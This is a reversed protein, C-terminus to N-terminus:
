EEYVQRLFEAFNEYGDILSSYVILGNNDVIHITVDGYCGRPYDVSGEFFGSEYTSKFNRWTMNNAQTFERLEEESMNNQWPHTWGIFSLGKSRYKDYITVLEEIFMTGSPFWQLLVTYKNKKYEDKFVLTNGDLDIVEFSPGFLLRKKIPSDINTNRIIEWWAYAWCPLQYINGPLQSLNKNSHLSINRLNVLRTISAPIAGSFQNNSLELEELQILDGISSPINGSLNNSSLSLLKLNTLDGIQSPITGKLQCGNLHLRELTPILCLDFPFSCNLPNGQLEIRKLTKMDRISNPLPGTFNNDRLGLDYLSEMQSIKPSLRGELKNNSLWLSGLSKLEYFSEPLEGELQNGEMYLDVLNQLNGISSPIKGTIPNSSIYLIQLKTLKGISEPLSGGINNYWLKLERLESLEGIEEPIYGSLNNYGLDLGTVRGKSDTTVGYWENLPKDSCWNTDDNWFSGNMAFWIAYLAKKDNLIGDKQAQVVKIKAVEGTEAHTFVIEAERADYTENALVTFTHAYGSTACNKNESLWDVEPMTITYEGNTSVEVKFEGGASTINFETESLSFVSKTKQVVKIEQKLDGSSITIIGERTEDTTNEAITFSLPKAELGRSETNQKIWDVSTSVEFDVNTNVEFKLDGGAAEVVYESKAIIIADKQAQVVKVKLVEETEKHTFVIEAERADYTENALVTFTHAYSSTARNKNESLWDVEPMTITYEGNTSVEVKFEGGASTINFETESLSFVSKTKQVVKIEQKLDGSSITIIGERAEETTNEDITFNLPTAELGRSETNQKIWDVSTSVEFDVNANVEFKLDGGTSEITYENKAVVIADKQTQVVKLTDKLESNKDYFVISASRADYEENSLVIYKLTHSSLGRSSAEDVIWDVDPMQVGFEVNSKIEVSITDGADSVAYENQSLLIIAGGAQYVKVTEVKDGSKFYVEGERKESEENMAIEFQHKKTTLARSSSEKIWDKADESIEMQYDINAKVEVEITGGEQSVEYKDTTLLLADVGKQSITFTKSATGSKITVSVSRDEYDTNETVTFKVSASGKTGSTASATCWTAGSTTNAVSLTWSENTTFSISQEGQENTFSLGNSIISSDITIESKVVEPKPTPDVPDDGGGSCASLCLLTAVLAFGIIRFTKM